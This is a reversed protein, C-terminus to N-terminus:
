IKMNIHTLNHVNPKFSLNECMYELTEWQIMKEMSVLKEYKKQETTLQINEVTFKYIICEDEM